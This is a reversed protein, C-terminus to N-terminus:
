RFIYHLSIYINQSYFGFKVYFICYVCITNKILERYSLYEEVHFIVENGQFSLKDLLNKEQKKDYIKM